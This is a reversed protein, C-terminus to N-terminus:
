KPNCLHWQLKRTSMGPVARPLGTHLDLSKGKDRSIIWYTSQKKPWRPGYDHKKAQCGTCRYMRNQQLSKNAHSTSERRLGMSGLRGLVWTSIVLCATGKEEHKM